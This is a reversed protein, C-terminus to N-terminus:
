RNKLRAFKCEDGFDQKWSVSHSTRRAVAVNPTPSTANGDSIRPRFLQMWFRISDFAFSSFRVDPTKSAIRIHRRMDNGDDSCHISAVIVASLLTSVANARMRLLLRDIFTYRTAGVWVASVGSAVFSRVITLHRDHIRDVTLLSIDNMRHVCMAPAFALKFNLQSQCRTEWRLLLLLVCFSLFFM